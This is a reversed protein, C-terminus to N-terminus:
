GLQYTVTVTLSIPQTEPRIAMDVNPTRAEANPLYGGYWFQGTPTESVGTVRVLAVDLTKAMQHANEKAAQLAMERVKRKLSAIDGVRFGTNMSTVGAGAAQEVIDGILDFDKTTATVTISAAYGRIKTWTQPDYVPSLNLHSTRIDEERVGAAKLAAMLEAQKKRLEAVALKPRRDEVSLTMMVDACDPVVDITATGTAVLTHTDARDLQGPLPIPASAGARPESCAAVAALLALSALTLTRSTM